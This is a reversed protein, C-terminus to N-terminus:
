FVKSFGCKPKHFDELEAIRKKLREIEVRDRRSNEILWTTVNEWYECMAPVDPHDKRWDEIEELKITVKLPPTM